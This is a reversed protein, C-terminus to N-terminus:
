DGLLEGFDGSGFLSGFEDAAGSDFGDGGDLGLPDSYIPASAPAEAAFLHAILRRAYIAADTSHNAQAKNEKLEGFENAVWQLAMLQSELKSGKLIKIRGDNLDGNFLEIAAKKGKQEAPLIRLGYVNALDDLIAGGLNTVDAVMGAPWGTHGLVGGPDEHSRVGLPSDEDVGLLLQAIPRAYMKPREFEYVHYITRSPDSPSYALVQLAFPDSHGLDIGFGYSWDAFRDPLKAFRMPGVREPDWQNWPSGDPLHPRYAFVSVTEDAAWLGCYERLWVSHQDTWGNREKEVLADAWLRAMAPVTKAGDALTWAHSSWRIWNAYHPEDRDAYARHLEGGPRTAEYFQGRLDHGPTGCLVLSGRYDGLRPTITRIVLADLLEPPFAAAEDIAVEHFPQGRLKDIERKDDAGVLRLTSGNRALTCRLKTENFTAPIGLRELLDKLQGWMLEEAWVRTPAIYVTKARETRLMRIVLRARVGTTKGGGRGVLAAVRRSPDEVFGRQLPHCDRLIAAIRAASWAEDPTLIRREAKAAEWPKRPEM